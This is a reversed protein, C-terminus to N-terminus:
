VIQLICAQGRNTYPCVLKAYLTYVLSQPFNPHCLQIRALLHQRFLFDECLLNSPSTTDLLSVQGDLIILFCLAFFVILFSIRRRAKQLASITVADLCRYRDMSRVPIEVGPYYFSEKKRNFM